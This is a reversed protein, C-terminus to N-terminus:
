LYTNILLTIDFTQTLLFFVIKLVRVSIMSSTFTSQFKMYYIEQTINIQAFIMTLAILKVMKNYGQTHSNM